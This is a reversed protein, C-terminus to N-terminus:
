EFSENELIYNELIYNELVITWARVQEWYKYGSESPLGM